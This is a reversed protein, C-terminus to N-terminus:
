SKDRRGYLLLFRNNIMISPRQDNRINQSFSPWTPSWHKIAGKVKILFSRLDKYSATCSSSRQDILADIMIKDSDGKKVPHAKLKCVILESNTTVFIINDDYEISADFTSMYDRYHGDDTPYRRRIEQM